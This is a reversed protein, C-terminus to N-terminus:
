FQRRAADLNEGTPPKAKWYSDRDRSRIDLPDRLWGVVIGFPALAILYLWGLIIRSQFGGVARAFSKWQNWVGRPQGPEGSPAHRLSEVGTIGRAHPEDPPSKLLRHFAFALIFGALTWVIATEGVGLGSFRSTLVGLWCVLIAGFDLLRPRIVAGRSAAKAGHGLVAGLSFGAMTLLLLGLARFLSM